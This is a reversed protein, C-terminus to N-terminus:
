GESPQILGIVVDMVNTGTPGTVVLADAASLALYSEHTTLDILPDRGAARVRGWTHRDVIAGAADSLGDRGDTGAALLTIGEAADRSAALIHAAALALEQCRGGRGYPPEGLTVTTEGGWLVCVPAGAHHRRRAILEGALRAGVRRAEGVLPEAVVEVAAVGIARARAAAGELAVTNDLLAVREHRALAAEGPKPTEPRKGQEVAALYARMSEPVLPWLDAEELLAIVDRARLPDAECPGSGIIAPDSGLVDSVLIPYLTAPALMAGMRGAALRSFRKRVANAARIPLGSGLLLEMLRRLDAHSIGEVPAAALSTAGGSILCLVGDEPAVRQALAELREAARQSGADPLPHDGVVVELAPHAAPLAEPAVVVGGVPERGMERLAAVAAASMAHAAKGVAAIWLRPHLRLRAARAEVNVATFRGAHAAEIAAGHIERLAPRPALTPM